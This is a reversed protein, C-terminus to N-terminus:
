SDALLEDVAKSYWEGAHKLREKCMGMVMCFHPSNVKRMVNLENWVLYPRLKDCLLTLLDMDTIATQLYPHDGSASQHEIIDGVFEPAHKLAHYLLDTQYGHPSEKPLDNFGIKKVAQKMNHRILNTIVPQVNFYRSFTPLNIHNLYFMVLDEKDANIATSLEKQGIRVPTTEVILKALNFCRNCAALEFVEAYNLSCKRLVLQQYICVATTDKQLTTITKYLVKKLVETTFKDSYTTYMLTQLNSPFHKLRNPDTLVNKPLDRKLIFHTYAYAAETSTLERGEILRRRPWRRLLYNQSPKCLIVVEVPLFNYIHDLVDDSLRWM